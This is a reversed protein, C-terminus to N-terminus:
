GSLWPRICFPSRSGSVTPVTAKTRQTRTHLHLWSNYPCFGFFILLVTYTRIIINLVMLSLLVAYTPFRMSSIQIDCYQSLKRAILLALFSVNKVTKKKKTLFFLSILKPFLVVPWLFFLQPAFLCFFYNCLSIYPLGVKHFCNFASQFIVTTELSEQHLLRVNQLKCQLSKSVLLM